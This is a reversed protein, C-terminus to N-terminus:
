ERESDTSARDRERERGGGVESGGDVWPPGARVARGLRPLTLEADGGRCPGWGCAIRM